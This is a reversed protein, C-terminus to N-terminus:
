KWCELCKKQFPHALPLSSSTSVYDAAAGEPACPHLITCMDFSTFLVTLTKFYCDTSKYGWDRSRWDPERGVATSIVVLPCHTSM